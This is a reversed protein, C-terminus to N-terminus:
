HHIKRVNNNVVSIILVKIGENKLEEFQREQKSPDNEADKLLYDYNKEKIFQEMMSNEKQFRLEKLNSFM